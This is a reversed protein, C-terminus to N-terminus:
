STLKELIKFDHEEKDRKDWGRDQLTKKILHVLKSSLYKIPINEVTTELYLERPDTPWIYKEGSSRDWVQEDINIGEIDLYLCDEAIFNYKYACFSLDPNHGEHHKIKYGDVELRERFWVLDSELVFLDLDDHKRTLHGAALDVAYGGQVILLKGFKNAIESWELLKDFTRITKQDNNDGIFTSTLFM